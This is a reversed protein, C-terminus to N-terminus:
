ITGTRGAVNGKSQHRLQYLRSRAKLLMARVPGPIWSRVGLHLKLKLACAGKLSLPVFYRPFKFEEFGNRRKFETLPSDQKGDYIYKGYVFFTLQKQVCLEVANAVLANMPRKDYHENRALVHILTAVRDVLVLKMFGVLQEDLYAGLFQSRDLYTGLEQKVTEFDKGYHWFRRGQRIPTEDYIGQVGKVFEDTFEVSRVVVGRKAARRVNKRSEQPLGEWWDDYSTIRIAALNDWEHYYDLRPAPDTFLQGFTFLDPKLRDVRLKSVLETSDAAVDGEVLDEDAIYATRVWGGKVIVTRNRIQTSQVKRIRGKVRIETQM